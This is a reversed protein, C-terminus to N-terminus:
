KRKYRAYLTTSNKTAVKSSKTIKKGGSKKTYWGVFKYGKKAKPKPLKGYKKGPAKWQTRNKKALKGKKKDYSLKIKSNVYVTKKKTDLPASRDVYFRPSYGSTDVYCKRFTTEVTYKGANLSVWAGQRSYYIGADNHYGTLDIKLTKMKKHKISINTPEYYEEGHIFIEMGQGQRFAESKNAVIDYRHGDAWINQKKLRKVTKPLTIKNSKSEALFLANSAKVKEEANVKNADFMLMVSFVSVIMAVVLGASVLNRFLKNEM